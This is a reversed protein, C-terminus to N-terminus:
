RGKPATKLTEDLASIRKNFGESVDSRAVEYEARNEHRMDSSIYWGAAIELERLASAIPEYRLFRGSAARLFQLKEYAQGSNKTVASISACSTKLWDDPLM